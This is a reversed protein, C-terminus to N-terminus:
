GMSNTTPDGLDHRWRVEISIAVSIINSGEDPYMPMAASYSVDDVLGALTRDGSTADTIAEALMENAQTSWTTHDANAYCQDLLTLTTNVSVQGYRTQEIDSDDADWLARAPLESM